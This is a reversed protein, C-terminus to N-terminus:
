FLDRIRDLMSQQQPESDRQQKRLQQLAAVQDTPAEGSDTKAHGGQFGRLQTVAADVASAKKRTVKTSNPLNEQPINDFVTSNLHLQNTNKRDVGGWSIETDDLAQEIDKEVQEDTVEDTTDTSTQSTSPAAQEIRHAVLAAGTAAIVM